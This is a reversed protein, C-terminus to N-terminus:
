REAVMAGTKCWGTFKLVLPMTVGALAVIIGIAVLLEVLTFGRQGETNGSQKPGLNRIADVEM